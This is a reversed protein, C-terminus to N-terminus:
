VIDNWRVPQRQEAAQVIGAVFKVANWGDEGTITPERDTQIAEIMDELIVQHGSKGIPEAHVQEVITRMQQPDVTALDLHKFHRAHVGGIVVTGQDGFLSLSEELNQPYINTTAEVIGLAGSQFRIVATALDESEINRLRTAAYAQIEDIPGMLWLMLDLNHIAQNMLVGGDMSRTGRWAAQDYYAQNRNWRVTANAHSLKGLLEHNMWEKLAMVAPRFRNPHVVTLKVRNAQCCAIIAEADSVTLAMPKEVIVHKHAQAAQMALKAHTGSPTCIIVVDIEPNTLMELYNGYARAGFQAVYPQMNAAVYDCVAVLSAAPIQQLAEAHKKAIHGCGVIALNM